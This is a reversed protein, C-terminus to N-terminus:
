PMGAFCNNSSFSVMRRGGAMFSPDPLTSPVFGATTQDRTDLWASLELLDKM